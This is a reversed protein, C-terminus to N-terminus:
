TLTARALPGRHHREVVGAHRPGQLASRRVGGRAGAVDPRHDNRRPIGSRRIPRYRGVRGVDGDLASDVVAKLVMGYSCLGHLIPQDFGGKRAFEPDAHIPNMDGSLRYLLAQQPLTRCDIELDPQRAPPAPLPSASRAGDGDGDCDGFGGEGRIFASFQNVVLPLDSRADRTVTELVVLAAKGKDVINRIRASTGVVGNVPLPGYLEMEQEGHLLKSLDVDMGPLKLMDFLMPSAPIVGFSPLVKLQGEFTYALEAPDTHPVGAGLGLHYLIVDTASWSGQREALEAGLVSDVDIPM